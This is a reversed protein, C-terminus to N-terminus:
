KEIICSSITSREKENFVPYYCSKELEPLVPFVYCFQLNNMILKNMILKTSLHTFFPRGVVRLCKMKSKWLLFSLAGLIKFPKMLLPIVFSSLLKRNVQTPPFLPSLPSFSTSPHLFLYSLFHGSETTAFIYCSPLMHFGHLLLLVVLSCFAEFDFCYKPLGGTRAQYSLRNEPYSDLIDM